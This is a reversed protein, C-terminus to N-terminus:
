RRRRLLALGGIGLLAVTAPEPIGQINDLHLVGEVSELDFTESPPDPDHRFMLRFINGFATDYDPTSAGHGIPILDAETIGFVYTRWTNDAPITIPTASNWNGGDITQPFFVRMLLDEDGPNRMDVQIATIGSSAYDGIWQTINFVGLKGGPLSTGDAFIRLFNDNVGDPGGSPVNTPTNPNAGGVVWDQTTGDEFDDIQGLVVGAQATASLMLLSTLATIIRLQM